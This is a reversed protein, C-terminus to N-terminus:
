RTVNEHKLIAFQAVSSGRQFPQWCSPDISTVEDDALLLELNQAYFVRSRRGNGIPVTLKFLFSVCAQRFLQSISVSICAASISASCPQALCGMRISSLLAAQRHADGCRDGHHPTHTRVSSNAQRRCHGTDM